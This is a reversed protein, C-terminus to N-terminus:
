VEETRPAGPRWRCGPPATPSERPPPNSSSAASCPITEGWKAMHPPLAHPPACRVPSSRGAMLAYQKAWSISSPGREQACARSPWSLTGPPGRGWGLGDRLHPFVPSCRMQTNASETQRARLHLWRGLGTFTSWAPSRDLPCLFHPAGTASVGPTYWFFQIDCCKHCFVLVEAHIVKMEAADCCLGSM